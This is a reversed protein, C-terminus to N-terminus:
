KGMREKRVRGGKKDRGSVGDKGRRRGGEDM